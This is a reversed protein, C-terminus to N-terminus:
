KKWKAKIKKVEEKIIANTDDNYRKTKDNEPSQERQTRIEIRKLRMEENMGPVGKFLQWPTIGYQKEKMNNELMFIQEKLEGTSSSISLNTSCGAPGKLIKNEVGVHWVSYFIGYLSALILKM